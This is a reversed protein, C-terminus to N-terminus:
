LIINNQKICNEMTERNWLNEVPFDKKVTFSIGILPRHYKKICNHLFKKLDDLDEDPNAYFVYGLIPSGGIKIDDFDNRACAIDVLIADCVEILKTKM